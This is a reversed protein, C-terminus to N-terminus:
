ALAEHRYIGIVRRAWRPSDLREIASVGQDEFVHVFDTETVMVGVHWPRNRLRLVVGDGPRPRDTIRRWGDAPIRGALLSSVEEMENASAYAGVYSPLEVGFEQRLCLHVLGYCDCAAFSRGGDAFPIGVYRAAWPPIM